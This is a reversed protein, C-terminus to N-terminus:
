KWKKMSARIKDYNEHVEEQSMARVQEKTFYGDGNSKASGVSGVSAKQNALRQKAKAEAKADADKKAKGSIRIFGEYIKSLPVIGVKGDAYDRFDQNDILDQIKVDPHDSMFKERDSRYWEKSEAEAQKDAEAKKIAEKEKTKLHKSYDTLPDGGSKEIERMTLFERVDASDKMEEGTYPNKGGLAEIIASERAAATAKELEARREAERRRRANESNQEKTQPKEEVTKPDAAEPEASESSSGDSFEADNVDDTDNKDVDANEDVGEDIDDPTTEATNNNIVDEPM